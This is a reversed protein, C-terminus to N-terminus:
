FKMDNAKQNYLNDIKIGRKSWVIIIIGVVIMIISAVQAMKFSGIMLSDTRLQEIFFRGISYWVLYMGTIEGIKNYKRRRLLWLVIFGIFNWISEYLFTPHYCIGDITMGNIIFQPLHLSELFVRTTEIGFAEQNFFNGWRGIAQALIVGVVMIDLMKFTSIKYKKTYVITVIIGAILGGHIALGGHWVKLIELLNSSYYYWNFIVYYLRAGVIGFLIVYFVLNTFFVKNINQKKIESKSVLVALFIGLLIMISYWHIGIKGIRFAVGDM